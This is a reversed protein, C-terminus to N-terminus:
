TLWITFCEDDSESYCVKLINAKYKGNYTIRQHKSNKPRQIIIPFTDTSGIVHKGPGYFAVDAVMSFHSTHLTSSKVGFLRPLRNRRSTRMAWCDAVDTMTAALFKINAKIRQLIHDGSLVDYVGVLERKTPYKRCYWYVELLEESGRFVM